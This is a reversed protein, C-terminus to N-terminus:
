ASEGKVSMNILIKKLTTDEIKGDMINTFLIKSEGQTLSMHNLTKKVIKELTM